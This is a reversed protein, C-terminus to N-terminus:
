TKNIMCKILSSEGDADQLAQGIIKGALDRTFFFLFKRKASMGHGPKKSTVIFDGIRVKGTVLVPEAGFVIPQEKGKKVVGMVLYDEKKDSIKLKDKGWVLVTGTEFKEIGKTTLGTEFIAGVTQQVVYIDQWRNTPTGLDVLGDGNPLLAGTISISGSFMGIGDDTLRHVVVSGSHIAIGKSM